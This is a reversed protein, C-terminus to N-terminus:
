FYYYLNKLTKNLWTIIREEITNYKELELFNLMDIWYVIDKCFLCM